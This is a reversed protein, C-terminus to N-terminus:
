RDQCSVTKPPTNQCAIGDTVGGALLGCATSTASMQAEEKDKGTAKRCESRGHFEICVECAIQGPSVTLYTMYGMLLAFGAVILVIKTTKSMNASQLGDRPEASDQV